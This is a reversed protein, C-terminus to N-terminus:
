RRRHIRVNPKNHQRNNHRPQPKNRVPREPEGFQWVLRFTVSQNYCNNQWTRSGETFSWGKKVPLISYQYRVSLQLSSWITFRLEGALALDNKQFSMDTTDPCFYTPRFEMKGHPQQVLRSYVPGLGIRLGGIPDKFFVTVPIDVYHLSMDINYLNKSNHLNNYVGRGSYDAEVSMTWTGAEDFRVMAGVGGSFGWHNFGKLEDGEIQSTIAGANVYANIYQAKGATAFVAALALLIVAPKRM